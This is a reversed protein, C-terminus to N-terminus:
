TYVREGSLTPTARPGAGANSEWFRAADSHRWVPKGTTLNYCSVDEDNGRQEQTYILNDRVAFSSWGPGVPRRWMAVPPKQSWDADIRAAHAVGDRQAGRFGPWSTDTTP